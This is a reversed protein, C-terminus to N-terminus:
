MYMYAVFMGVSYLECKRSFNENEHVRSIQLYVTRIKMSFSKIKVSKLMNERFTSFTFMEVNQDSTNCARKTHLM